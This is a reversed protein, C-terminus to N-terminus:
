SKINELRQCGRDLPKGYHKMSYELAAKSILRGCTACKNDSMGSFRKVAQEAVTEM